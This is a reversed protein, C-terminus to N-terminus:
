KIGKYEEIKGYAMSAEKMQNALNLRGIVAQLKLIENNNEEQMKAIIVRSKNLETDKELALKNLRRIEASMEYLVKAPVEKIENQKVREEIQEIYFMGADSIYSVM